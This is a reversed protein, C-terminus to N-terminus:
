NAEGRRLHQKAKTRQRKLLKKQKARLHRAERKQARIDRENLAEVTARDGTAVQSIAPWSLGSAVISVATLLVFARVNMLARKLRLIAAVSACHCLLLGCALASRRGDKDSADAVQRVARPRRVSQGLTM